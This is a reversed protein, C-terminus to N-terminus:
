PLLPVTRTAPVVSRSPAEAAPRPPRASAVQGALRLARYVRLVEYAYRGGLNERVGVINQWGVARFAVDIETEQEATLFRALDIEEGAEAALVLHAM